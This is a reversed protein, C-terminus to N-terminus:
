VLRTQAACRRAGDRKNAQNESTRKFRRFVLGVRSPLRAFADDNSIHCLIAAQCCQLCVTDDPLFKRNYTTMIASYVASFYM